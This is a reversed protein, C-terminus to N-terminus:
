KQKECQDRKRDDDAGRGVRHVLSMLRHNSTETLRDPFDGFRPQVEPRREDFLDVHEFLTQQGPVALRLVHLGPILLANM